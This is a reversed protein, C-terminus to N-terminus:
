RGYNLDHPRRPGRWRGRPRSRRACGRPYQRLGQWFPLRAGCRCLYNRFGHVVDAQEPTM